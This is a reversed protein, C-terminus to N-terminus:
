SEGACSVCRSTWPIAELRAEPIDSSCVECRGYGGEALRTLAHDVEELSRAISRASATTALREVAESTGDGVRKGFSVGVGPARPETLRDLEAQLETRRITLRERAVGLDM